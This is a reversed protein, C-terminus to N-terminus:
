EPKLRTKSKNKKCNKIISNQSAYGVIGGISTAEANTNTVTIKNVCNLIESDNLGCIAGLNSSSGKIAGSEIIISDIKGKNYGFLGTNPSTSEININKFPSILLCTVIVNNLNIRKNSKPVFSNTLM